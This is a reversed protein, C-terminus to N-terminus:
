FVYWSIGKKSYCWVPIPKSDYLFAMDSLAPSFWTMLFICNKKPPLLMYTPFLSSSLLFLRSKIESVGQVSQAVLKIETFYSYYDESPVHLCTHSLLMYLPDLLYRSFKEERVTDCWLPIKPEMKLIYEFFWM